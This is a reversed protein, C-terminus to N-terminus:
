HLDRNVFCGVFELDCHLESRESSGKDQGSDTDLSGRCWLAGDLWSEGERGLRGVRSGGFWGLGRVGLRGLRGEGERGLRGM